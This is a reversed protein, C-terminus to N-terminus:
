IKDFIICPNRIHVDNLTLVTTSVCFAVDHPMMHDHWAFFIESQLFIFVITVHGIMHAQGCSYGVSPRCYM